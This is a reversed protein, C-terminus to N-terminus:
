CHIIYKKQKIGGLRSVLDRGDLTFLGKSKYQSINFSMSPLFCISDLIKQKKLVALFKQLVKGNMNLKPTKDLLNGEIKRSLDSLPLFRQWCGRCNVNLVLRTLRLRAKLGVVARSRSTKM